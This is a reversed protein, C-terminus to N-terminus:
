AGIRDGAGAIAALGLLYSAKPPVANGIMVALQSRRLERGGIAFRFSDPFFQLRAAEHPTLTRRQTAHVYRGQGPSGFGTTITQAPEDWHMRGYMSMYSHAKDRHCKPRMPDPLDYRDNRAFLWRIRERNQPNQHSSSDFVTGKTEVELDDIAWSMPRPSTHFASVVGDLDVKLGKVAVLFHRRRRQAVGVQAMPITGITVRYGADELTHVTAGVVGSRDHVVAPVNEIIVITPELALAMAPM